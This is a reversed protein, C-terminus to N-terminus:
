PPQTREQLWKASFGVAISFVRKSYCLLQIITINFHKWRQYFASYSLFFDDNGGVRWRGGRRLVFQASNSGNDACTRGTGKFM